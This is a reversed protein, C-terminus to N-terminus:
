GRVKKRYFRVSLQVSGWQLFFFGILGLLLIPLWQDCIMAKIMSFDIGSMLQGGLGYCLFSTVFVLLKGKELGFRYFIPLHVAVLISSLLMLGLVILFIDVVTVGMTPDFHACILSFALVCLGGFLTLLYGLVYKSLVPHMPEIPLMLAYGDWKCQQDYAIATMPLFFGFISSIGCVYGWAFSFNQMFIMALLPPILCLLLIMRLSSKCTYFDKLLLTKM